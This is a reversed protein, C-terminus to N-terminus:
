QLAEFRWNFHLSERNLVPTSASGPCLVNIFTVHRLLRSSWEAFCVVGDREQVMVVDDGGEAMGDLTALGDLLLYIRTRVCWM